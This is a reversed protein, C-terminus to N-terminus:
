SNKHQDGWILEGWWHNWNISKTRFEFFSVWRPSFFIIIIIDTAPLYVFSFTYLKRCRIPKISTPKTQDLSIMQKQFKWWKIMLEHWQDKIRVCSWMFKVKIFKIQIACAAPGNFTKKTEIIKFLRISQLPKKQLTMINISEETRSLIFRLIFRMFHKCIMSRITHNSSTRYNLGPSNM